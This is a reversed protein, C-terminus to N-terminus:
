PSAEPTKNGYNEYSVIDQLNKRRRVLHNVAATLDLKQKPYGVALLAIVQLDEGINLTTKVNAEDFSGEWCTGLGLATAAIVMQEGALSADVAYWEPSAKEDGCVAIVLPADKVFRAFM